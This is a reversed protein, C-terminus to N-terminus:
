AQALQPQTELLADEDGVIMIRSGSLIERLFPDRRNKRFIFEDETMVTYNIEHGRKAEEEKVLASLEPLVINGVVLIDVDAHSRKGFRAFPGSFMVFKVDGLKKRNKRIKKGLGTTKAVMTLLDMFFDYQPNLMYYLRNGREESRVMGVEQMRALERRVANIEEGTLRTLERVYWMESPKSFFLEILEVRVKSLMFDSLQAM